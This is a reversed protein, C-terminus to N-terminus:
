RMRASPAVGSLYRSMAESWSLVSAGTAKEFKGVDLASYSPRPAPRRLEANSTGSLPSPEIGLYETILRAAGLWHTEGKNVFHFTGTHREEALLLIAAALDSILTPSGVQDDVVRLCKAANM